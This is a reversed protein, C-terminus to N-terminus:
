HLAGWGPEDDDYIIPDDGLGGSEDGEGFVVSGSTDPDTTQNSPAGTGPQGDRVNMIRLVIASLEARTLNNAPRFTGDPYGGIIGLENLAMVYGSATDTFVSEKESQQLGLANAAVKAVIQRSIRADLDTIEGLGILNGSIALTLYGSAWHDGTKAPTEYGAALLIMKLAEGATVTNNPKFTGDPYGNIVGANALPTVYPEYWDGSKVDSFSVAAAPVIAASLCGILMVAILLASYLRKKM